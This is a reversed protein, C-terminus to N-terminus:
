KLNIKKPCLKRHNRFNDYISYNVKLFILFFSARTSGFEIWTGGVGLSVGEGGREGEGCVGSGESIAGGGLDNM